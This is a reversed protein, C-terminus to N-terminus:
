LLKDRQKGIRDPTIDALLASGFVRRWYGLRVKDKAHPAYEDALEAFTHRKSQGFHRGNKMDAEITKGGERADTLREFTATEPPFGRRRVKARYTTGKDTRRREITPM